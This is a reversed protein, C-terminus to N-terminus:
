GPLNPRWAGEDEVRMWIPTAVFFDSGVVFTEDDITVKRVYILKRSPVASGPKPWLYQVWAEDAQTLKKLVEKIAPFGVADKFDLLNRGTMTPFAPDVLTQGKDNLVFIYSDLFVFPSAPNQFQKFAEAKGATKLLRSALKVRDEIFKKEVKIDYLGSGVLYTKRDPAIV